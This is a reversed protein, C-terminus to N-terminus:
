GWAVRLWSFTTVVGQTFRALNKLYITGSVSRLGDVYSVSLGTRLAVYKKLMQPRPDM